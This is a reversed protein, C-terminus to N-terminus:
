QPFAMDILGRVNPSFEEGGAEAPIRTTGRPTTETVVDIIKGVTTGLKRLAGDDQLAQRVLDANESVLITAVRENEADTLERGFMGVMSRAISGIARPDGRTVADLITQPTVGMNVLRDEILTEATNTRDIVASKAANSEEAIDLKVLVDDIKDEPVAMRFLTNYADEPNSMRKIFGARQNSLLRGQITSLMGSRFADLTQQDGSEMAAEMLKQLEFIKEDAKGSFAERGMKFADRNDRALRAMNRADALEPIDDDIANRVQKAIVDYDVGVFGGTGGPAKFEASTIADMGKRIQEAEEATPRRLFKLEDGDMEFLPKFNPDNVRAQFKKMLAPRLAPVARIAQIIEGFVRDSVESKPGEKFPAYATNEAAREAETTAQRKAYELQGDGGLSESMADGARKRTEGPRRTLAENIIDGAKGGKARLAKVAALLTKNEAMIRGEMIGEVIEEPTMKLKNALRQIENNVTSSGRRGVLFRAERGLAKLLDAGKGLGKSVAPNMVAGTVAGGPVRSVRNRFGGEGTNFAYAGGEIAGMAALRGVSPAMSTGGTFPAAVLGPILAGGIERGYAGVPDAQRYLELNNRISDLVEQQDAGGLSRVFAEIEDASGFSLGQLVARLKTGVDAEYDAPVEQTTTSGGSGGQTLTRFRAGTEQTTNENSM